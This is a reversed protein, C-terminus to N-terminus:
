RLISAEVRAIKCSVVYDDVNGHLLFGGTNM